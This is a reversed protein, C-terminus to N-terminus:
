ITPRFAWRVLPLLLLWIAERQLIIGFSTGSCCSCFICLMAAVVGTTGDVNCRCISCTAQSVWHLPQFPQQLTPLMAPTSHLSNSPDYQTRLVARAGGGRCVKNQVSFIRTIHAKCETESVDLTV